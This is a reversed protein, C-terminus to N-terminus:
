FILFFVKIDRLSCLDRGCISFYYNTGRSIFKHLVQYSYSFYHWIVIASQPLTELLELFPNMLEIRNSLNRIRIHFHIPVNMIPDFEKLIDRCTEIWYKQEEHQNADHDFDKPLKSFFYSVIHFYVM